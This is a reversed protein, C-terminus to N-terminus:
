PYSCVFERNIKPTTCLNCVNTICFMSVIPSDRSIDLIYMANCPYAIGSKLGNKLDMESWKWILVGLSVFFGLFSFIIM